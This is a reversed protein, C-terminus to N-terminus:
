SGFPDLVRLNAAPIELRTGAAAGIPMPALYWGICGRQMEDGIDSFNEWNYLRLAFLCFTRGDDLRLWTCRYECKGNCCRLTDTRGIHRQQKFVDTFLVRNTQIRKREVPSSNGSAGQLMPACITAITEAVYEGYLAAHFGKVWAFIIQNFRHEEIAIMEHEKGQVSLSDIAFRRAANSPFKGHLTSVIQGIVEDDMSQAMNCLEHAPLVLPVDRDSQAFISRPPIHQRTKKDQESFEKGCVCCFHIRWLRKLVQATVELEIM